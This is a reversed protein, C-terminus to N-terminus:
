HTFRSQDVDIVTWKNLWLCGMWWISIFNCDSTPLRHLHDPLLWHTFRCSKWACALLFLCMEMADNVSPVTLDFNTRRGRHHFM